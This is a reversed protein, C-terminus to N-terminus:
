QIVLQRRFVQHYTQARGGLVRYLRALIFRKLSSIYNLVNQKIRCDPNARNETNIHLVIKEEVQIFPTRRQLM